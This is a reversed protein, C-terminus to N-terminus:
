VLNYLEAIELIYNDSDETNIMVLIMKEIAEKDAECDGTHLLPCHIGCGGVVEIDHCRIM